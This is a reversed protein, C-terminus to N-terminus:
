SKCYRKGLKLVTQNQDSLLIKLNKLMKLRGKTRMTLKIMQKNKMPEVGLDGAPSQINQSQVAAFIENPSISYNTMKDSDLWIRM